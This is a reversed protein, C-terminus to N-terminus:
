TVCSIFHNNRQFKLTLKINRNGELYQAMAFPVNRIGGTIDDTWVGDENCGAIGNLGGDSIDGVAYMTANKGKM